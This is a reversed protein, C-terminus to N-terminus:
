FYEVAGWHCICSTRRYIFLFIVNNRSKINGSRAKIELCIYLRNGDIAVSINAFFDVNLDQYTVTLFQKIFLGWFQVDILM